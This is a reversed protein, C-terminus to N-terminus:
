GSHITIGQSNDSQAFLVRLFSRNLESPGNSKLVLRNRQPFSFFPAPVKRSMVAFVEYVPGGDMLNAGIAVEAFHRALNELDVLNESWDSSVDEIEVPRACDRKGTAAFSELLGSEAQTPLILGQVLEGTDEWLANQPTRAEVYRRIVYTSRGSGLFSM